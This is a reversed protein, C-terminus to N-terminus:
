ADGGRGSSGHSILVSDYAMADAVGGLRCGGGRRAPDLASLM